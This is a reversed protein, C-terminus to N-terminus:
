MTSWGASPSARMSCTLQRRNGMAGRGGGQHRAGPMSGQPLNLEIRDRDREHRERVLHRIEVAGGNAAKARRQTVGREGLYRAERCTWDGHSWSVVICAAHWLHALRARRQGVGQTRRRGRKRRGRGMQVRQREVLGGARDGGGDGRGVELVKIAVAGGRHHLALQRLRPGEHHHHHHLWRFAVDDVLTPHLERQPARM